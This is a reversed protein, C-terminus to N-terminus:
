YRIIKIFKAYNSRHDDNLYKIRAKAIVKEKWSEGISHYMISEMFNALTYLQLNRINETMSNKDMMFEGKSMTNKISNKEKM